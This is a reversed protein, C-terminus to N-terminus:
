YRVLTQRLMRSEGRGRTTLLRKASISLSSSVALATLLAEWMFAPPVRGRSAEHNRFRDLLDAHTEFREHVIITDEVLLKM